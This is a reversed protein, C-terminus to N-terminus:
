SSLTTILTWYFDAIFSSIRQPCSLCVAYVPKLGQNEQLVFFKWFLEGVSKHVLKENAEIKNIHESCVLWAFVKKFIFILELFRINFNWKSKKPNSSYHSSWLPNCYLKMHMDCVLVVFTILWNMIHCFLTKHIKPCCSYLMSRHLRYYIWNKQKNQSILTILKLCLKMYWTKKGFFQLRALVNFIYGRKKLYDTIGFWLLM